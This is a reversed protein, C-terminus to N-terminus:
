AHVILQNQGLEIFNHQVLLRFLGAEHRVFLELLEDNHINGTTILLLKPPGQGLEHAM